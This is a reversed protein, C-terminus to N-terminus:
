SSSSSPPRRTPRTARLSKCRRRARSDSASRKACTRARCRQASRAPRGDRRRGSRPRTRENERSNAVFALADEARWQAECHGQFECYECSECLRPRTEVRTVDSDLTAELQRRLRRWYPLFEEVTLSETTGSGLWVHMRRPAAGTLAAIAEAYFCLQLVHGPKAKSRTLKADVPEYRAYGPEDVRVLFDAIGRMGDHLFPMQYIVDFGTDLSGRM